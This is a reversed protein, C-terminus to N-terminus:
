NEPYGSDLWCKFTEKELDTLKIDESVRIPPMLFNSDTAFVREEIKGNKLYLLINPYSSFDALVGWGGNGLGPHCGGNNCSREFIGKLDGNYTANFNECNDNNGNKNCSLTITILLIVFILHRM